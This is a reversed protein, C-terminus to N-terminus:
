PTQKLLSEAGDEPPVNTNIGWPYTPPKVTLGLREPGLIVILRVLTVTKNM